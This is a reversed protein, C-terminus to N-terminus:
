WPRRFTRRIIVDAAKHGGERRGPVPAGAGAQVGGRGSGARSQKQLAGEPQHCAHGRNVRELFRSETDEFEGSRM